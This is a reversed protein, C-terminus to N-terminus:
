KLTPHIYYALVDKFDQVSECTAINTKNNYQVVAYGYKGKIYYVAYPMGDTTYRVEKVEHTPNNIANIVANKM